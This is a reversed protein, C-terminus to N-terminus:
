CESTSGVGHQDTLQKSDTAGRKQCEFCKNFQNAKRRSFVFFILPSFSAFFWCITDLDVTEKQNGSFLTSVGQFFSAKPPEPMDCPVFLEANCDRVQQNIEACASFKQIESNTAAYCGLANESFAIKSCIRFVSDVFYGFFWNLM